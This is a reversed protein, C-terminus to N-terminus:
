RVRSLTWTLDYEVSGSAAYQYWNREDKIHKKQEAPYDVIIGLTMWPEKGVSRM